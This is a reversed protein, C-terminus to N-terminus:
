AAWQSPIRDLVNLYAARRHGSHLVNSGLTVGEALAIEAGFEGGAWPRQSAWYNCVDAITARFRSLRKRRRTTNERGM